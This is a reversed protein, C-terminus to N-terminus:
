SIIGCIPCEGSGEPYYYSGCRNPCLKPSGPPRYADWGMKVHHVASAEEPTDAFIVHLLQPEGFFLGKKRIEDIGAEDSLTIGNEDKWAEFRRSM